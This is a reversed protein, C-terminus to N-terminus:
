KSEQAMLNLLMTVAEARTAQDKPAFANQSKGSIIALKQLAAVQGKAWSPIEADDAFTTVAIGDVKLSLAKAIMVAMETRTIKDNPRLTGDSYGNIIGSQVANEIATIAWAGIDAKDTFTLNTAETDQQNLANMLMVVFEARTVANNPKFTGNEYGKVIGVQTAKNINTAAWHGIVDSFTPPEPEAEQEGHSVAMVSFKTLHDVEVTITNGNIKGGQVQVWEKKVEDYYFVEPTQNTKLAARDFTFTLTIPHNFNGTFNKLIEFIPSILMEAEPEAEMWGIDLLEEITIILEKDSANAPISITIANELSVEGSKGVPLVISGENSIVESNDSPPIIESGAPP